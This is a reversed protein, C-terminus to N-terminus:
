SVDADDRGSGDAAPEADDDVSGNAASNATDDISGDAQKAFSQLGFGPWECYYSCIHQKEFESVAVEMNGDGFIDVGPSVTPHTLIQPDTLLESSGQYDSIFALGRTKVYQVHQTFTFFLALDYWYDSEDLLPNADMNHIYKLFEDKGGPILEEVLYVARASSASWKSAAKSAPLPGFAFAIGADVFRVQPINFPPPESASAMSRNIFDYTLQLLSRAWYLVNAEKVLRKVEDPLAYRGIKYKLSTSSAGPPYAKYYARKVAVDNRTKSGFGSSPPAFLTLWGPHATKFAGAGLISAMSPNITLQGTLCEVTEIDYSLFKPNKLMAALPRTPIPYYQINENQLDLLQRVDMNVTGGIRLAESLGERDPSPSASGAAFKKHPPSKNSPTTISISDSRQHARKSTTVSEEVSPLNLQETAPSATAHRAVRLSRSFSEEISPLDVQQQEMAPSTTINRALLRPSPHYRSDEETKELWEEYERWQSGPVVVMLAFQKSKFVKCEKGARKSAQWCEAYFYPRNAPHTSLDVWGADRVVFEWTRWPFEPSLALIKPLVTDLTIKILGPADIQAHIDKKGERINAIPTGRSGKRKPAADHVVSIDLSITEALSGVYSLKSWHERESAYAAHNVTYGVGHGASTGTPIAVNPGSQSGQLGHSTAIVRPPNITATRQAANVSRRIAHLDPPPHLPPTRDTSHGMHGLTHFGTGRSSPRVTTAAKKRYRSHCSGCVFRGSKTSDITAIYFCPDGKLINAACAPRECIRDEKAYADETFQSVLEM